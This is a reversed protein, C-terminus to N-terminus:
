DPRSPTERYPQHNRYLSLEYQLTQGLSDNGQAEARELARAITAMAGDFDGNEAQAAALTRLVIPADGGPLQTARRALDVAAAGDRFAADPCTARVWALNNLANGDNPDLRLSAQWQAIGDVARGTQYYVAGLADRAAIDDPYDKIIKEWHVIDAANSHRTAEDKQGRLWLAAGLNTHAMQSDGAVALAHTWVSISDRWYTTQRFSCATLAAIVVAAGISLAIERQRWSRTLDVILWAVAITLGIHPLYTFRDARAQLGAQMFGLVPFVMLVFWCWGVLVYPRTRRVLLAALTVALLLTACALVAALPLQNHPHPYFISLNTPWFTQRLYAALSVLANKLRWSFPIYALPAITIRQAYVTAISSIASLALLPIKELLLRQKGIESRKLPWYDLLLLLLPMPVLTAKSLLGCEYLISMTLYRAISPARAYRTYAILTLAFFIGSLVDKREAIWAVSEVRMPHIAFVAAVFASRWVTGTMERLAFFLLVAGINHLLVNVFHHGAPRLGFFTCDLLHSITTLPHWLSAHSRTFAHVIGASTLGRSIEANSYVYRDDDYNVFDHGLTQAFVIWVLATITLCVLLTRQM